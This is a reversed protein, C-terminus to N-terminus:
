LAESVLKYFDKAYSYQKLSYDGFDVGLGYKYECWNSWLLGCIAVYAYIKLRTQNPCAQEFYCDILRDIGEKDYFSYIAFMAIDVHPDQMGAYEWDILHLNELGDADKVMLFNDPIADIHSLVKREVHAEIFPRLSLIQEKTQAYDKYLSHRSSWLSEYFELQKFLDFEHGVTLQQEHFTRLFRICSEVDKWDSADATRSDAFYESIKYGTLPDIYFVPDCIGYGDLAQYVDAEEQRNILQDTGEGPIRMIYDHGRCTFRFSRNTMGKKLVRIHEIEDLGVGLAESIVEMSAIQLNKSVHDLERLEEFTNIEIVEKSQISKAYLPTHKTVDCLLLDEWFSQEYAEQNVCQDLLGNLRETHSGTLYAIGVMRHGTKKGSIIALQEQKNVVVPSGAIPVQSMMYWSYLEQRQFPNTACWIDSPIIYVNELSHRALYLSYLNNKNAYESNVVLKVGYKELLYHFKEKKFGVVITIDSVGVQHLQCILREVLPEGNVELLGKPTELNIPVMRTGFGAALIIGRKPSRERILEKAARTLRMNTELLGAGILDKLCANVLGLAYSLDDALERQNRYPAVALKLLIDFHKKTLNNM